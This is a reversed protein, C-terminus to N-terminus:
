VGGGSARCCVCCSDVFCCLILLVAVQLRDSNLLISLFVAPTFVLLSYVSLLKNERVLGFGDEGFPRLNRIALLSVVASLMQWTLVVYIAALWQPQVCVCHSHYVFVVCFFVPSVENSVGCADPFHSFPGTAAVFATSILMWLALLKSQGRASVLDKHRLFFNNEIRQSAETHLGKARLQESELLARAIQFQFLLALRRSSSLGVLYCIILGDVVIACPVVTVDLLTVGVLM